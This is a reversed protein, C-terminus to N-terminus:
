HCPAAHLLTERGREAQPVATMPLSAFSDLDVAMAYGFRRYYHGIGTIGQIVHGLAESREHTVTMLERVLGRQRYDPHTLVVEPRGVGIEVTDYRWVQPILLVSSVVMDDKAPDVVVWVDDDTITPHSGSLLSDVWMDDDPVDWDDLEDRFVLHYLGKLRERDREYGASLSRLRLGDPLSKEMRSVGM